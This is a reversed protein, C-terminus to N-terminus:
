TINTTRVIDEQQDLLASTDANSDVLYVRSNTESGKNIDGDISPQQNVEEPKELLEGRKFVGIIRGKVDRTIENQNAHILSHENRTLPILNKIDNNNHNGDIHHVDIEPKLVLKDNISIFYKPDFLKYNQEVVLRHKKVRSSKNCFPHEPLYVWIDYVNGNRKITETGKFSANLDGKLGYQHNGKGSYLLSKLKNNCEKSCTVHKYRNIWSQKRHLQKGCIFCTCNLAGKLSNRQCFACCYKANKRYNPVEFEKCCNKCILKLM